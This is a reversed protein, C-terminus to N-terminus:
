KVEHIGLYEGRRAKLAIDHLIQEALKKNPGIKRKHQKGHIRYNIWWDQSLMGDKYPRKYASM